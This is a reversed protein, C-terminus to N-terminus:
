DVAEVDLAYPLDAFTVPMEQWTINGAEKAEIRMEILADIGNNAPNPAVKVLQGAENGAADMVKDGAAAQNATAAAIHALYTRRKVKGLYHTRAVIEQGTYCGKKFNIGNLVDLNLMQPVFQDQTTALVDPTGTQVDLWDWCGTDAEVCKAKLTERIDSAQKSDVIIEYRTHGAISPLKIILSHAATTLTYNKKPTTGLTESVISEADPGNIGFRCMDDSVDSIDVKTRMVYMTLRKMVRELIPQSFQLYLKDDHTFALFLALMRGKPSCYASLHANSGNLQTVDNTVQGQLFSVADEGSLALLGLQSLECLTNDTQWNTEAM